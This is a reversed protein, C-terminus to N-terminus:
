SHYVNESLSINTIQIDKNKLSVVKKIIESTSLSNGQGRLFVRVMTNINKILKIPDESNNKDLTTVSELQQHITQNKYTSFFVSPLFLAILFLCAIAIFIFVFLVIRLLYETIIRKRNNQPLFNLM